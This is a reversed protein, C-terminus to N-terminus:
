QNENWKEKIGIFNKFTSREIEAATMSGFCTKAYPCKYFHYRGGKCEPDAPPLQELKLAELVEAVWVEVQVWALPSWDVAFIKTRQDDKNEYYLFGRRVKRMKEYTILQLIHSDRPKDEKFIEEFGRSNIGKFDLVYSVGRIKIVIDLHGDIYFKAYQVHEEVSIVEFINKGLVEQMDYFQWALRSHRWNGDDFVAELEPDIGSSQKIEGTFKLVAARPCGCISSPSLRGPPRARPLLDPHFFRCRNKSKERKIFYEDILPTLPDNKIRANKILKNMISMESTM